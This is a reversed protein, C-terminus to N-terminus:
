CTELLVVSMIPLEVFTIAAEPKIYTQPQRSSDLSLRSLPQYGCVYIFGSAAIVTTSSGIILPTESSVLQANLLCQFLLNQYVTADQQNNRYSKGKPKIFHL